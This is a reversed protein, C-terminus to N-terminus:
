KIFTMKYGSRLTQGNASVTAPDFALWTMSSSSLDTIQIKNNASFNFIDFPFLIYLNSGSGSLTYTSPPNSTSFVVLMCTKTADDFAATTFPNTSLLSQVLNNNQDMLIKNTVMNNWTGTLMSNSVVTGVTTTGTVGTTGTTGTAGTTGKTNTETSVYGPDGPLIPPDLKCAALGACAYALALFLKYHKKM